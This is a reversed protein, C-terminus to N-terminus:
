ASQQDLLAIGGALWHKAPQWTANGLRGVCAGSVNYHAPPTTACLNTFDQAGAQLRPTRVLEATQHQEDRSGVEWPISRGSWSMTRTCKNEEAYTSAHRIVEAAQGRRLLYLPRGSNLSLRTGLFYRLMRWQDNSRFIQLVDEIGTLLTRGKFQWVPFQVATGEEWGVLRHAHWQRIVAAETIGLLRATEACSIPGGKALTLKKRALEGRAIAAVVRPNFKATTTLPEEAPAAHGPKM